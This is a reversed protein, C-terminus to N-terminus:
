KQKPQPPLIDEYEGDAGTKVGEFRERINAPLGFSRPNKGDLSSLLAGFVGKREGSPFFNRVNCENCFWRDSGHIDDVPPDICQLHFSYRCGDCCVLDGNGSCTYCSDDNEDQFPLTM